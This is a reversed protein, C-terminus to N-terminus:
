KSLKATEECILHVASARSYQRGELRIKAKRAEDDWNTSFMVVIGLLMM